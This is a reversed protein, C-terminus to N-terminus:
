TNASEEKDQTKRSKFPSVLSSIWNHSEGSGKRQLPEKKINQDRNNKRHDLASESFQHFTM